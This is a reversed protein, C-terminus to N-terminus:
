ILRIKGTLLQQMMGQRIAVYKDRKAEMEVIESDMDSLITAIAQQESVKSPLLISSNLFKKKPLNYRTSGQALEIMLKRGLASRIQYSVFLPDIESDFIRFGFCFSNLYLNKISESVYSCMGVEEPTESSTNLLLDGKIVSNQRENTDVDVFELISNDIIPNYIVNVFTVFFANGHGFDSASKGSLGNYTYGFSSFKRDTWPESFGPLRRRASLLDQMTATMVARKKYILAGIGDILADIDTLADAINKQEAKGSPFVITTSNLARKSISIVKTGQMHRLLSSHYSYGNFFYGLYKPSFDSLPHLAITHLGAVIRDNPNANFVESVKGVTEDEATDAIVVDGNELFTPNFTIERNIFPLDATSIDIISGFKILVDGYHINKIGNTDTYNLCSRSLTNNGKMSFSNAVISVVWDEPIPGLETDKFKTEIM